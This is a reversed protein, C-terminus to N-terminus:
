MSKQIAKSRFFIYIKIFLRLSGCLILMIDLRVSNTFTSINGYRVNGCCYMENIKCFATEDPGPLDPFGNFISM